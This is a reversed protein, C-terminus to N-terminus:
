GANQPVPVYIGNESCNAVGEFGSCSKNIFAVENRRESNVKNNDM